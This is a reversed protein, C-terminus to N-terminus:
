LNNSFSWPLPFCLLAYSRVQSPDQRCCKDHSGGDWGATKSPDGGTKIYYNTGDGIVCFPQQGGLTRNWGTETDTVATIVGHQHTGLVAGVMSSSCNRLQSATAVITSGGRARAELGACMRAADVFLDGALWIVGYGSLIKDDITRDGHAPQSLIDFMDAGFPSAVMQLRLLCTDSYAALAVEQPV